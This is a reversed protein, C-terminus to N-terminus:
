IQWIGQVSRHGQHTPSHECCIDGRELHDLCQEVLESYSVIWGFIGQVFAIASLVLTLSHTHTHTHPPPSFSFVTNYWPYIHLIRLGVPRSTHTHLPLKPCRIWECFAVSQGPEGPEQCQALFVGVLAGCVCLCVCVCLALCCSDGLGM